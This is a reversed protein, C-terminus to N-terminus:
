KQKAATETRYRRIPHVTAAAQETRWRSINATEKRGSGLDECGPVTTLSGANIGNQVLVTQIEDALERATEENYTGVNIIDTELQNHLEGNEDTVPTQTIVMEFGSNNILRMRHAARIDGGQYGRGDLRLGDNDRLDRGLIAAISARWQSSEAAGLAFAVTEVTEREIQEGATRINELDQLSDNQAGQELHANLAVADDELAKLDGNSWHNVDLRVGTAAHTVERSNEIQTQAQAVSLQAAQYRRTWEQEAQVIREHFALAELYANRADLQAAPANGPLNCQAEANAAAQLVDKLQGPLLLECRYTQSDANLENAIDLFERAMGQLLAQDGKAEALAANIENIRNNAASIRSNIIRNNEDMAQEVRRNNADMADAFDTRLQYLGSSFDTRLTEMDQKHAAAQAALSNNSETVAQLLQQHLAAVEKEAERKNAAIRNNMATLNNTLTNIRNNANDLSNSLAANLANTAKISAALSIAKAAEARLNALEASDITVYKRGSM